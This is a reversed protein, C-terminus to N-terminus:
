IARALCHLGLSHHGQTAFLRVIVGKCPNLFRFSDLHTCNKSVVIIVCVIIMVMSGSTPTT